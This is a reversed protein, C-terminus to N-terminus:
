ELDIHDNKKNEEILYGIYLGVAGLLIILVVKWFGFILLIIGIVIGILAGILKASFIKM